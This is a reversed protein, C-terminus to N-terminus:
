HSANTSERQARRQDFQQLMDAYKQQQESTLQTRIETRIRVRLTDFHAGAARWLSDVEPRHRALISKVSDRQAPSLQLETTLHDLYSEPGHDHHAARASQTWLVIGAGAFGGVILAAILLVAAGWRTRTM